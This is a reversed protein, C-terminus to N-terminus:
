GLKLVDKQSETLTKDSLNIVWKKDKEENFAVARKTKRNLLRNLKSQHRAMMLTFTKETSTKCLTIIRDFDSHHVTNKLIHFMSSQIKNLHVKMRYSQRVRARLIASNARQAIRYGEM